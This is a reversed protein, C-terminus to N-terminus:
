LVLLRNWYAMGLLLQFMLPNDDGSARLYSTSSSGIWRGWSSGTAYNMNWPQTYSNESVGWDRRTMGVVEMAVPSATQIINSGSFPNSGTNTCSGYWGETLTSNTDDTKFYQFGSFPSPEVGIASLNDHTEGWIETLSGDAHVIFAWRYDPNYGNGGDEYAEYIPMYGYTTAKCTVKMTSCAMITGGNYASVHMETSSCSGYTTSNNSYYEFKHTIRSLTGGEKFYALREADTMALVNTRNFSTNITSTNIAGRMNIPYDPLLVTQIGLLYSGRSTKEWNPLLIIPMKIPSTNTVACYNYYTLSTDITSPLAICLTDNVDLLIPKNGYKYSRYIGLNDSTSQAELNSIATTIWNNFETYTSSLISQSPTRIVSTVPTAQTTNGIPVDISHAVSSSDSYTYTVKDDSSDSVTINEGQCYTQAYNSFDVLCGATYTTSYSMDELDLGKNSTRAVSVENAQIGGTSSINTGTYYYTSSGTKVLNADEAPSVTTGALTMTSTNEIMYYAGYNTSDGNNKVYEQYYTNTPPPTLFINEYWETFTLTGYYNKCECKTTGGSIIVDELSLTNADNVISAYKSSDQEERIIRCCLSGYNTASLNLGASYLPLYSEGVNVKITSYEMVSNGYSDYVTQINNTLISNIPIYITHYNYNSGSNNGVSFNLYLKASSVVNSLGSQKSITIYVCSKSKKMDYSQMNNNIIDVPNSAGQSTSTDRASILDNPHDVTYASNGTNSILNSGLLTGDYSRYTGDIAYMEFEIHYDSVSASHGEFVGDDYIEQLYENPLLIQIKYYVSSSTTTDNYSYKSFFSTDRYGGYVPYTKITANSDTIANLESITPIQCEYNNLTNGGYATIRVKTLDLSVRYDTDSEALYVTKIKHPMQTFIAQNICSFSTGNVIYNQWGSSYSSTYTLTVEGTDEDISFASYHARTELRTGSNNLIRQSETGRSDAESSSRPYQRTTHYPHNELAESGLLLATRDNFRDTGRFGIHACFAGSSPYVPPAFSLTIISGENGASYSLYTSYVNWFYVKKINSYPTDPYECLEAMRTDYHFDDTFSGDLLEFKYDYSCYFKIGLSTSSSGQYTHRYSGIFLWDGYNDDYDTHNIVYVSGSKASETTAYDLYTEYPCTFTTDATEYITKYTVTYNYTLSYTCTSASSGFYVSTTRRSSTSDPIIITTGYLPRPRVESMYDITTSVYSTFGSTFAIHSESLTGNNTLNAVYDVGLMYYFKTFGQTTLVDCFWQYTTKNDFGSYTTSGSFSNCFASIVSQWYIYSSSTTKKDIVFVFFWDDTDTPDPNTSRPMAMVGGIYFTNNQLYTLMDSWTCYTSPSSGTPTYTPSAGVINSISITSSTSTNVLVMFNDEAIIKNYVDQVANIGLKFTSLVKSEVSYCDQGFVTAVIPDDVICYVLGTVKYDTAFTSQHVFTMDSWNVTFTDSSGSVPYYPAPNTAQNIHNRSAFTAHSGLTNYTGVDTITVTSPQNFQINSSQYEVNTLSGLVQYNTGNQAYYRYSIDFIKSHKTSLSGIEIDANITTGDLDTKHTAWEATTFDSEVSGVKYYAGSCNYYYQPTEIDDYEPIDDSITGLTAGELYLTDTYSSMTTDWIRLRRKFGLCHVDLFPLITCFAEYEDYTLYDDIYLDGSIQPDQVLNGNEDIGKLSNMHTIFDEVDEREITYELDLARVYTGATLSNLVIDEVDLSGVTSNEWVFQTINAFDSETVTHDGVTCTPINQNKVYFTLFSSPLALTTMTGTQPLTIGSISTNNFYAEQLNSCTSLDINGSLNGCGTCDLLELLDNNGLRLTTFNTNSYGTTNRDGIELERLMPCKTFDAYGIQYQPLGQIRTLLHASYIYTETDNITMGSPIPLTTLTDPTRVRAQVLQSGYKISPYLPTLYSVTLDNAQYGRVTAYNVLADGANFKSDLYNFRNTIFYHRDTKMDGLLMDFYSDDGDIIYPEIYKTYADENFLREGWQIQHNDYANILKTPTWNGARMTQYMTKIDGGFKALILEWLLSNHGNYIYASGGDIQDGWEYFPHFAKAGENNIGLITDMDYFLSWWRNEVAKAM